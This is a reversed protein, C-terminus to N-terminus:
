ALLSSALASRIADTLEKQRQEEITDEPECHDGGRATAKGKGKGKDSQSGKRFIGFGGGFDKQIQEHRQLANGDVTVYVTSLRVPQIDLVLIRIGGNTRSNNKKVPITRTDEFLAQLASSSAPYRVTSVIDAEGSEPSPRDQLRVPLITWSLDHYIELAQPVWPSVAIYFLDDISPDETEAWPLLQEYLDASLLGEEDRLDADPVITASVPHKENRRRRRRKKPHDMVPAHVEM